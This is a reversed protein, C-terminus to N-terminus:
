ILIFVKFTEHQTIVNVKILLFLFVFLICLYEHCSRRFMRIYIAISFFFFVVEEASMMPSIPLSFGIINVVVVVVVAASRM